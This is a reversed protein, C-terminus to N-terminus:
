FNTLKKRVAFEIGKGRSILFDERTAPILGLFKMKINTLLHHIEMPLYDKFLELPATFFGDYQKDLIYEFSHYVDIFGLKRWPYTSFMGMVNLLEQTIPNKLMLIMEVYSHHQIEEPTKYFFEVKPIPHRSMGLTIYLYFNQYRFELIEVKPLFDHPVYYHNTPQNFISCYHNYLTPQFNKWYLPSNEEFLSAWYDKM